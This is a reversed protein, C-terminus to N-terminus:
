IGDGNVCELSPYYISQKFTVVTGSRITIIIEDSGQLTAEKGMAPLVVDAKNKVAVVADNNKLAMENEEKDYLFINNLVRKM